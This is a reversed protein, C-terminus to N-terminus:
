AVAFQKRCTISCELLGFGNVSFFYYIFFQFQNDIADNIALKKIGAPETKNGGWRFALWNEEGRRRSGKYLIGKPVCFSDIQYVVNLSFFM